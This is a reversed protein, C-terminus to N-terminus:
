AHHVLGENYSPLIEEHSWREILSPLPYTSYLWASVLGAIVAARLVMVLTKREM